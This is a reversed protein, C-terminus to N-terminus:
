RATDDKGAGKAPKNNKLSNIGLIYGIILTVTPLTIMCIIDIITM